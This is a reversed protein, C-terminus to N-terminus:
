KGKILIEKFKTLLFILKIIEKKIKTKIKDM